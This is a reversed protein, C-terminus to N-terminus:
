SEQSGFDSPFSYSNYDVRPIEVFTIKDGRSILFNLATSVFFRGETRANNILVWKAAEIFQSARPFYFHGTTALTGIVRKEAVEVVESSSNTALYSWRPNQSKFAITWPNSIKDFGLPLYDAIHGSLFADAPAILVPEDLPLGGCGILASALAGETKSNALFINSSPFASELVTRCGRGAYEEDENLVFNLKGGTIATLSASQIILNRNNVVQMNRTSDPGFQRFSEM